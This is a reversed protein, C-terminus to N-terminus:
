KCVGRAKMAHVLDGAKKQSLVNESPNRDNLQFLGSEQIGM